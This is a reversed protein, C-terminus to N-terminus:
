IVPAGFCKLCWQVSKSPPADMRSLAKLQDPSLMDYALKYERDFAEIDINERGLSVLSLFLIERYISRQRKIDPHKKIERLLLNIPGYVDNTQINRVISNLLTRTEQHDTPSLLAKRELLSRWCLYLPEGSEQHLNINDWLLQVFVQKSDQSLSTQQLQVGNNCHESTLILGPLNSPLDLRRFYWVLNWFIIPHQNIFKHTYIVHEGENELLSELEKRLVLPSLYPVSVPMPNPKRTLSLPDVVEQLSNPLSSTSVGHSPRQSFDMNQLPGGVSNSRTLSAGRKHPLRDNLGLPDVQGGQTNESNKEEANLEPPASPSAQPSDSVRILNAAEPATPGTKQEVPETTMPINTSHISDGSTSPKLFFSATGRLDKFEINLLPLFTSKCFPCTTNLNSDDAAWGAMIEEDYVLAECGRCQSCSSM